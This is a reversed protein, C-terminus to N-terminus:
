SGLETADCQSSSITLPHINVSPFQFISCVDPSKEMLGQELMGRVPPSHSEPTTGEVICSYAGSFSIATLCLGLFFTLIFM